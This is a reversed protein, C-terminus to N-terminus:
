KIFQRNFKKNDKRIFLISRRGIFIRKKDKLYDELYQYNFFSKYEEMWSNNILYVAESNEIDKWTNNEKERL